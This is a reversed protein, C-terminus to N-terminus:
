ELLSKMEEYSKKCGQANPRDVLEELRELRRNLNNVIEVLTFVDNELDGKRWIIDIEKENKLQRKDSDLMTVM